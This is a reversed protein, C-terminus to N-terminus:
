NLSINLSAPSSFKQYILVLFYIFLIKLTFIYMKFGTCIVVANTLPTVTELTKRKKFQEVVWETLDPLM